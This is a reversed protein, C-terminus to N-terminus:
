NNSNTFNLCVDSFLMGDQSLEHICESVRCHGALTSLSIIHYVTDRVM